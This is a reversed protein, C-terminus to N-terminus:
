KNKRKKNVIFAVTGLMSGVLPMVVSSNNTIGTKALSDENQKNNENNENSDKNGKNNENSDKNDKNDTNTIEEVLEHGEVVSVSNDKFTIIAKGNDEIVLKTYKINDFNKRVLAKEQETLHNKDKVKVKSKIFIKTKNAINDNSKKLEEVLLEGKYKIKEGTKLIITSDGNNAVEVEKVQDSFFLLGRLEKKEKDTLNNKDKVILKKHNKEISKDIIKKQEEYISKITIREFTVNYKSGDKFKVTLNGFKSVSYEADDEIYQKVEQKIKEKEEKTVNVPNKVAIRNLKIKRFKNVYKAAITEKVLDAVDITDVSKDPYTIVVKNDKIDIKTKLPFNDRNLDQICLLILSAEEKVLKTKNEVPIKGELLKPTIRDADTEAKVDEEQVLLEGKIEFQKAKEIKEEGNYSSYAYAIIAKGDKEITVRVGEPFNDKNAELIKNKVVTKEEETLQTKNKVKTKSPVAPQTKGYEKQTVVEHPKFLKSTDDKFDIATAGDEAVIINTYEVKAKKLAEKVNNEIHKIEDASLKGIDTVEVKEIKIKDLKEQAIAYSKNMSAMPQVILLAGLMVSCLGIPLKRMGYKVIRDKKM